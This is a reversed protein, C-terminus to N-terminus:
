SEDGGEAPGQDPSDVQNPGPGTAEGTGEGSGVPEVGEIASRDRPSPVTMADRGWFVFRVARELGGAQLDDRADATLTHIYLCDRKVDVSLTGPTLTISNALTTVAYDGWVAAEFRRMKPDIPLSPHLIIYAVSINAKAIEWLLYPFYVLLRAVSMTTQRYSPRGEVTIGAFVGTALLSAIGGTVLDFVSLTGAVLLYFAYTAGFVLAGNSLTGRSPIPGRRSIREVAATEVEIGRNELEAQLPPIMPASGGPSFQPDLLIRDFGNAEAYEHLTEAYDGPAFLYRDEGITTTEIEVALDGEAAEIDEEAWARVRELLAEADTPVVSEGEVPRWKVPYVFHLAAPRDRGGAELVSSVATAVTNRFTSSESVPVLRRPDAGEM